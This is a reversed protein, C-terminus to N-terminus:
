PNFDYHVTGILTSDLYQLFCGTSMAAGGAVPAAPLRSCLSDRRRSSRALHTEFGPHPDTVAAPQADGQPVM